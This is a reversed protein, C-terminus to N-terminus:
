SRGDKSVFLSCSLHLWPLTHVTLAVWPKLDCADVRDTMCRASSPRAPNANYLLVRLSCPERLALCVCRSYM